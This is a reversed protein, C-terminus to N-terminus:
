KLAHYPCPTGNEPHEAAWQCLECPKNRAAEIRANSKLEEHAAIFESTRLPWHNKPDDRIRMIKAHKFAAEVDESTMGWDSFEETWVDIKQTMYELEAPQSNTQFHMRKLIATVTKKLSQNSNQNNTM